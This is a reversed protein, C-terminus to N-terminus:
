SAERTTAQGIFGHGDFRTLEVVQIPIKTDKIPPIRDVMGPPTDMARIDPPITVVASSCNSGTVSWTITGSLPGIGGVAGMPRTWSESGAISGQGSSLHATEPTDGGAGLGAGGGGGCPVIDVAVGFTVGPSTYSFDGTTDTPTLQIDLDDTGAGSSGTYTCRGETLSYSATVSSAVCNIDIGNPVILLPSQTCTGSAQGNWSESWSEGGISGSGSAQLTWSATGTTSASTAAPAASARSGATSLESQATSASASPVLLGFYLAGFLLAAVCSIRRM